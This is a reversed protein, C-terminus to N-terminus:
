SLCPFVIYGRRKLLYFDNNNAAYTTLEMRIHLLQVNNNTWQRLLCFMLCMAHMRWPYPWVECPFWWVCLTRGGHIFLLSRRVNSSPITTSATAPRSSCALAQHCCNSCWTGRNKVARCRAARALLTRRRWATHHLQHAVISGETPQRLFEHHWSALECCCLCSCLAHAHCRKKKGICPHAWRTGTPPYLPNPHSFFNSKPM